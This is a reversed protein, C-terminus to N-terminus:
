ATATWATNKVLVASVFYAQTPSNTVGPDGSEDIYCLHM